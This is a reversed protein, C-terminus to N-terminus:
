KFKALTAEDVRVNAIAHHSHAIDILSAIHRRNLINFHDCNSAHCPTIYSIHSLDHDCLGALYRELVDLRACMCAPM